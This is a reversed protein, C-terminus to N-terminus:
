PFVRCCGVAERRSTARANRRYNEVRLYFYVGELILNFFHSFTSRGPSRTNREHTKGPTAKPECHVPFFTQARRTIQSSSRFPFKSRGPGRFCPGHARTSAHDCQRAFLMLIQGLLLSLFKARSTATQRPRQGQRRRSVPLSWPVIFCGTRQQVGAISTGFKAMLESCQSGAEVMM